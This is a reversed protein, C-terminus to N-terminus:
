IQDQSFWGMPIVRILRYSPRLRTHKCSVKNYQPLISLKKETKGVM